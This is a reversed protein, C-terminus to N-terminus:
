DLVPRTALQPRRPSRIRVLLPAKATATGEWTKLGITRGSAGTTDLRPTVRYIGAEDFTGASCTVTFLVSLEARGKVPLTSYLERIPSSVQRPYGCSVTGAPGNVTFQIMEPRYLLTIARDTRNTLTISTGVDVGRAVDVSEPTSLVVGNATPDTETSSSAKIVDETLTIPDAELAKASSVKSAAAGVPTIAFPTTPGGARPKATPAAPWGFRAKVVTGTVLAARERAGFCYFLPDFAHSWARKSPIVLDQGDDSSPRVDDPLICRPAPPPRGAKKATTPDSPTTSAPTLELILLRPDATLRVPGEGTNEIRVRWQAGGVGPTIKLAVSPSPLSAPPEAKVSPKTAPAQAESRGAVAVSGLLLAAWTSSRVLSSPAAAL